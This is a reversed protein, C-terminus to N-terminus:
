YKQTHFAFYSVCQTNRPSRKLLFYLLSEHSTTNFRVTCHRRSPVLRLTLQDYVALQHSLYSCVHLETPRVTSPPTENIETSFRPVYERFTLSSQLISDRNPLPPPSMKRVPGSRGQPVGLRRHSPYRAEKGPPPPLVTPAHRQGGRM